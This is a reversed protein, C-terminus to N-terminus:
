CDMPEDEVTLGACPTLYRVPVGTRADGGMVHLTDPLAQGSRLRRAVYAVMQPELKVGFRRKFLDNIENTKM